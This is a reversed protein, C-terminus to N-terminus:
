SLVTENAISARERMTFRGQALSVALLITNGIQAVMLIGFGLMVPGYVSGGVIALILIMLDRRAVSSPSAPIATAPTASM